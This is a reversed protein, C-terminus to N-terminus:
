NQFGTVTWFKDDGEVPGSFFTFARGAGGDGGMEEKKRRRAQWSLTRTLGGKPGGTKQPYVKVVWTM